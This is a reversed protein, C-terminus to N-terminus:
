EVITIDDSCEPDFPSGKVDVETRVFFRVQSLEVGSNELATPIDAEDMSIIFFDEVTEGGKLTFPYQLMDDSRSTYEDPFTDAGLIEAVEMGDDNTFSMVFESRMSLVEADDDASILFKGKVVTDGIPLSVSGPEQREIEVHQVKVGHGGLFKKAKDFFGM